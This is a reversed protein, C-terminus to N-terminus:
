PDSYRYRICMRHYRQVVPLHPVVWKTLDSKASLPGTPSNYSSCSDPQVIGIDHFFWIVIGWISQPISFIFKRSTTKMLYYKRLRETPRSYFLSLFMGCVFLTHSQSAFANLITPKLHKNVQKGQGSLRAKISQCLCTLWFTITFWRCYISTKFLNWKM